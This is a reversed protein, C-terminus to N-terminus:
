IRWRDGERRAEAETEFIVSKHVWSAFNYVRVVWRPGFFERRVVVLHGAPSYFTDKFNEV